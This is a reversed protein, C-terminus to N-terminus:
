TGMRFSPHDDGLNDADVEKLRWDRKGMDRMRNERKVLFFLGTCAAGCVWLMSLCVSYGTKYTPAESALFINSTVIGGANGFGIQIATSISRKYHGSVLNSLWVLTIPQTIFGGPVILFLAFYKVGAPLGRQALLIIYGVSAVVLGFICFWYRHRLRDSLYASM